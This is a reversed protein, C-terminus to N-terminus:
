ARMAYVAAAVLGSAAFSMTSAGSDSAAATATAAAAATPALAMTPVPLADRWDYCANFLTNYDEFEPYIKPDVIADACALTTFVTSCCTETAEMEKCDEIIAPKCGCTFFPATVMWGELRHNWIHDMEAAISDDWERLAACPGKLAAQCESSCVADWDIGADLSAKFDAAATTGSAQIGGCEKDLADVCEQAEAPPSDRWEYCGDILKQYETHTDYTMIADACGLTTFIATCCGDSVEGSECPDAILIFCKCWFYGATTGTGELRAAYMQNYMEDFDSDGAAAATTCFADDKYDGKSGLVNQCDSSCAREWNAVEDTDSDPGTIICENTMFLDLCEEVQAHAKSAAAVLGFLALWRNM